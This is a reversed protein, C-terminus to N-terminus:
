AEREADEQRKRKRAAYRDLSGTMEEEQEPVSPRSPDPRVWLIFDEVQAGVTSKVRGIGKKRTKSVRPALGTGKRPPPLRTPSISREDRCPGPSASSSDGSTSTSPVSSARLAQGWRSAEAEPNWTSPASGALVSLLDFTVFHEGEVIESPLSRPIIPLNYPTPSQRM